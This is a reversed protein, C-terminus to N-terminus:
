FAFIWVFHSSFSVCVCIWFFFFFRVCWVFQGHASSICNLRMPNSVLMFVDLSTNKRELVKTETKWIFAFLFYFESELWNGFVLETSIHWKRFFKFPNRLFGYINEKCYIEIKFAYSFMWTASSCFKYEILNGAMQCRFNAIRRCNNRRNKRDEVRSMCM